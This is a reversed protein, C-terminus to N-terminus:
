QGRVKAVAARMQMLATLAFPKLPHGDLSANMAECAALLEPAAAILARDGPAISEAVCRGLYGVEVHKRSADDDGADAYVYGETDNVRWPGPSPEATSVTSAVLVALGTREAAEDTDIDIRWDATSELGTCILGAAELARLDDDLQGQEDDELELITALEDTSRCLPSDGLLQTLIDVRREVTSTPDRPRGTQRHDREELAAIVFSVTFDRHDRLWRLVRQLEVEEGATFRASATLIAAATKDPPSL